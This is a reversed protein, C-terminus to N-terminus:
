GPASLELHQRVNVAKWRLGPHERLIVQLREDSTLLEPTIEGRGNLREIFESEADTLPLVSSLLSRTEEVLDKTWRSLEAKSPALDSRLVPVLFRRAEEGSIAVDEVSVTRWDKRNMGGYVVFGLRLRDRDLGGLRLMERADFIDRSAGRAMLAALKGAALEHRDLVAIGTAKFPGVPRSDRVEVPWLPTRLTFNVDLELTGTGGRPSTFGLRWKGGAHDSPTRRVSLGDRQCVAKVAQEVQPRESRMTELDAGGIYNLDVDVSLRPVHLLFLNLATGGKLALRTKLFPHSRLGDLVSLLRAVKELTDPQFRTAAAARNITETSLQM